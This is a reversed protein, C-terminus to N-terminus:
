QLSSQKHRFTQKDETPAQWKKTKVCDIEPLLSNDCVCMMNLPNSILIRSPVSPSFPFINRRLLHSVLASINCGGLWFFFFFISPPFAFFFCSTFYTFLSLGYNQSQLRACKLRSVDFVALDDAHPRIQVRCEVHLGKGNEAGPAAGIDQAKGIHVQLSQQSVDAAITINLRGLGGTDGKRITAFNWRPM